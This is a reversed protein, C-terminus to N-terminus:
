VCRRVQLTGGLGSRHLIGRGRRECLGARDAQPLLASQQVTGRRFPCDIDDVILNGNDDMVMAGSQIAEILEEYRSYGFFDGSDGFADSESEEGAVADLRGAEQTHGDPANDWDNRGRQMEHSQAMKDPTEAGTDTGYIYEKRMAKILAVNNNTILVKRDINGNMYGTAHFFYVSNSTTIVINKNGGDYIDTTQNALARLFSQRETRPVMRVFEESLEYSEWDRLYRSLLEKGHEREKLEVVKRAKKLVRRLVEKEEVDLVAEAAKKIQDDPVKMRSRTKEAEICDVNPGFQQQRYLRGQETRQKQLEQLATLRNKFIQLASQEGDTLDDVKIENAALELVDRDTLPSTREQHQSDEYIPDDVNSETM